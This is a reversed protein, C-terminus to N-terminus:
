ACGVILPVGVWSIALCQGMSRANRAAYVWQVSFAATIARSYPIYVSGTSGRMASWISVNALSNTEARSLRWGYYRWDNLRQPSSVSGLSSTSAAAQDAAMVVGTLGALGALGGAAVKLGTNSKTLTEM